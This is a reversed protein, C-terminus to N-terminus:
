YWIQGEEEEIDTRNLYYIEKAMDKAWSIEEETSTGIYGNPNVVYIADSYRIKDKHISRLEERYGEPFDFKDMLFSELGRVWWGRKLLSKFVRKHTHKFRTSGCLTIKKCDDTPSPLDELSIQMDDALEKKGDNDVEGEGEREKKAKITWEMDEFVIKEVKLGHEEFTEILSSELTQGEENM